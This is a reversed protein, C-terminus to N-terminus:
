FGESFKNKAKESTTRKWNDDKFKELDIIGLKYYIEPDLIEKNLLQLFLIKADKYNKENIAERLEGKITIGRRRYYRDTTRM